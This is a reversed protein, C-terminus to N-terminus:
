RSGKFNPNPIWDGSPGWAGAIESPNIVRPYSFEMEDCCGTRDKEAYWDLHRRLDTRRFAPLVVLRKGADSKTDGPRGTTLELAALLDRPSLLGSQPLADLAQRVEAVLSPAHDGPEEAFM